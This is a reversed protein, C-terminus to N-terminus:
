QAEENEKNQAIDMKRILESVDDESMDSIDMRGKEDATAKGEQLTDNLAREQRMNLEPLTGQGEQGEMASDIGNIEKYIGLVRTLDSMNDVPIEGSDLRQIFQKLSKSAASNILDRLAEESSGHDKKNNLEQRLKNTMSM